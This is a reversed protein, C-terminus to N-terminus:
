PPPVQCYIRSMQQILTPALAGDEGIRRTLQELGGHTLGNLMKWAEGAYQAFLGDTNFVRDLAAALENFHGYPEGGCKIKEVQAHEALFAVFLGRYAVEVMPRFLAFASGILREQGALVLIAEHHSQTLSVFAAFLTRRDDDPYKGALQDAIFQHMAGARRMETEIRPDMHDITRTADPKHRCFRPVPSERIDTRHTRSGRLVCNKPSPTSWLALNLPEATDALNQDERLSETSRAAAGIM